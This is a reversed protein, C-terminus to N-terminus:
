VGVVLVIGLWLEIGAIIAPEIGGLIEKNWSFLVDRRGRVGNKCFALSLIDSLVGPSDYVLIDLDDLKLTFSWKDVIVHDKISWDRTLVRLM